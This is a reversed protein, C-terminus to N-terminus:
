TKEYFKDNYEDLIIKLEACYRYCYGEDEKVFYEMMECIFDRGNVLELVGKKNRVEVMGNKDFDKIRRNRLRTFNDVYETFIRFQEKEECTLESYLEEPIEKM